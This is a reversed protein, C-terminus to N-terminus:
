AVQENTIQKIQQQKKLLVNFNFQTKQNISSQKHSYKTKM